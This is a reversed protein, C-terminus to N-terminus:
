EHKLGWDELLNKMVIESYDTCLPCEMNGLEVNRHDPTRLWVGYYPRSHDPHHFEWRNYWDEGFEPKPIYGRRVANGILQRARSKIPNEEAKTARKERKLDFWRQKTQEYYERRKAKGKESNTYIAIQKAKCSKCNWELGDPSKKNKTFNLKFLVRECGTCRKFNDDHELADLERGAPMALIEERTM